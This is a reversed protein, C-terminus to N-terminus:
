TYSVFLKTSVYVYSVCMICLCIILFILIKLLYTLISAVFLLPVLFLIKPHFCIRAHSLNLLKIGVKPLSMMGSYARM